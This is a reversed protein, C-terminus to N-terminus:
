NGDVYSEYAIKFPSGKLREKLPSQAQVANTAILLLVAAVSFRDTRLSFPMSFPMSLPYDSYAANVIFKLIAVSHNTLALLCARHATTVPSSQGSHGLQGM